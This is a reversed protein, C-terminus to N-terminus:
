RVVLKPNQTRLKNAQEEAQKVVDTHHFFSTVTTLYSELAGELDGKKELAIGKVLFAEGYLRGEEFNPAATKNAAEILPDLLRIAEDMNEKALAARAKGVNAKIVYPSGPFQKEIQTYLENAETSKGTAVYAEALAGMADVYWDVPIGKFKKVLPDLILIVNQADSKNLSVLEPPTAMKIKAINAIPVPVSGKGSGVVIELFVSNGDARVITGKEEKETKLTIVDQALLLNAKLLFVGSFTLLTLIRIMFSTNSSITEYFFTLEEM